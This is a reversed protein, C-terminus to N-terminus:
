FNCVYMGNSNTRLSGATGNSYIDINRVWTKMNNLITHSWTSNGSLTDQLTLVTYMSALAQSETTDVYFVLSTILTPWFVNLGLRVPCAGTPRSTESLHSQLLMPM